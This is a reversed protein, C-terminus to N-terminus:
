LRRMSSKKSPTVPTNDGLIKAEIQRALSGYVSENEVGSALWNEADEKVTHKEQNLPVNWDLNRELLKQVLVISPFSMSGFLDVSGKQTNQMFETWAEVLISKGNQLVPDCGMDLLAEVLDVQTKQIAATLPDQPYARRKELSWDNRTLFGLGELAVIGNVSPNGLKSCISMLHSIMIQRTWDPAKDPNAWNLFREWSACLTEGGEAHLSAELSDPLLLGLQSARHKEPVTLMFRDLWDWWALAADPQPAQHTWFWASRETVGSGWSTGEVVLHITTTPAVGFVILNRVADASGRRLSQVIQNNLTQANLGM